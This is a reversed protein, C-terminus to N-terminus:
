PLAAHRTWLPGDHRCPVHGFVVQKLAVALFAIKAGCGLRITALLRAGCFAGHGVCLCQAVHNLFVPGAPKVIVKPKFKFAREFAPGHGFARAQVRFDFAHGNFNFVVRQGVRTKLARNWGPLVARALDDDPVGAAPLRNFIRGLPKGASFELKLQMAVLQAAFPRQHTHAAFTFLLRRPQQDLLGVVFGPCCAAIVDGLRQGITHRITRCTHASMFFCVALRRFRVQGGCHDLGAVRGTEGVHQLRLERRQGIRRRRPAVPNIFQLEITIPQHGPEVAIVDAANGAVAM